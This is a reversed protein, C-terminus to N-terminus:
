NMHVQTGIGKPNDQVRLTKGGVKEWMKTTTAYEKEQKYIRKSVCGQYLLQEHEVILCLRKGM